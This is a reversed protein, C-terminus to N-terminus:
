LCGNSEFAVQRFSEVGDDQELTLDGTWRKAWDARGAIRNRDVMYGIGVVALEERQAGPTEYLLSM